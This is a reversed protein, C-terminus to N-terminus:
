KNKVIYKLWATGDEMREAHTLDLSMPKVLKLGADEIMRKPSINGVIGPHILVSVEDVLGQALMLTTLTGGSDIRVVKVKYQKAMESLAKKLDVKEKGAAIYDVGEGKLYELYEKPTSESVMALPKKWFPQKKIAAWNRVKGRSDVVAMIMRSCSPYQAAAEFCWEPVPDPMDAALMTNSGSLMCDPEFTEALRYYTGMDAEFGSVKGDLSTEIHIVVYPKTM